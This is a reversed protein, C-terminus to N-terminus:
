IARFRPFQTGLAGLWASACLPKANGLCGLVFFRGAEGLSGCARGRPLRRSGGAVHCFVLRIGFQHVQGGQKNCRRGRKLADAALGTLKGDDGGAVEDWGCCGSLLVKVDGGVGVDWCLRWGGCMRNM